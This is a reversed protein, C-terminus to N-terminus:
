SGQTGDMTESGEITCIGQIWGNGFFKSLSKKNVKQLLSLPAKVCM